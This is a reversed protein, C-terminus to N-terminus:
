IPVQAKCFLISPFGKAQGWVKYWKSLGRLTLTLHLPTSGFVWEGM